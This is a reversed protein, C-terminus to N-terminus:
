EKYYPRKQRDNKTWAQSITVTSGCGPNTPINQSFFFPFSLSALKSLLFYDDFGGPLICFGNVVAMRRRAARDAETSAEGVDPLSAASPLMLTTERWNVSVTREVCAAHRWYPMIALM